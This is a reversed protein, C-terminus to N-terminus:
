EAALIELWLVKWGITTSCPLEKSCSLMWSGPAEWWARNKDNYMKEYQVIYDVPKGYTECLNVIEEDPINLPVNKFTIKSINSRQRRCTIEHGLGQYSGLLPTLDIDPKFMIERTDYRGSTYNFRLCDSPKIKVIDFLITGM